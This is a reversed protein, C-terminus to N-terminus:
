VLVPEFQQRFRNNFDQKNMALIEATKSSQMIYVSKNSFADRAITKLHWVIGTERETYNPCSQHYIWLSMLTVLCAGILMGVLIFGVEAM